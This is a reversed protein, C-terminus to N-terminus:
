TPRIAQLRYEHEVFVSGLTTHFEYVGIYVRGGQPNWPRVFAEWGDATKVNNGQRCLFHLFNYGLPWYADTRITDSLVLDAGPLLANANNTAPVVTLSYVQRSERPDHVTLTWSLVDAIVLPTGDPWVLRAATGLPTGEAFDSSIRTTGLIM